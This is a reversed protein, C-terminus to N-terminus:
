AAPDDQGFGDVLVHYDHFGTAAFAGPDNTSAAAVNWLTLRIRLDEGIWAEKASLMAGAIAAEIRARDGPALVGNREADQLLSKAMERSGVEIPIGRDGIFRGHLLCPCAEFRLSM